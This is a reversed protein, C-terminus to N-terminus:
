GQTNPSSNIIQGPYGGYPYYSGYEYYMPVRRVYRTERMVRAQELALYWARCYVFSQSIVVM